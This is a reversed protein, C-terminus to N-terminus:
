ANTEEGRYFRSDLYSATLHRLGVLLVASAPLALLIGFFGFIQGFALLAFIVALPHLGIRQGVLWPTLVFSELVQGLGYVIAVGILPSIGEFQLLAVLIALLLGLGFGLYPIFILLGTIIGVPLAFNVGALWLGLSYFVALCLMVAIQGHLFEGLVADIEGSIQRTRAHWPRPILNDFRKLLHHWDMLLYFMVIPLLALTTLLGLMALGGIKVSQLLSQLISQVSDRHESLFQKVAATDMQIQPQLGFHQKLWPMAHENWLAILMPLREMIQQSEERVLPLLTLVLLALLAGLALITLLAGLPRPIRRRTLRDVLPACIYAFIGALLFPTLIPRLLYLLWLLALGCASWLLTQLRDARQDSMEPLIQLKPM